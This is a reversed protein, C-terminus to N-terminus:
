PIARSSCTTVAITEGRQLEDASAYLVRSGQRVMLRTAEAEGARRVAFPENGAMFGLTIDLRYRVGSEPTIDHDAQGHTEPKNTLGFDLQETLAHQCVGVAGLLLATVLLSIVFRVM